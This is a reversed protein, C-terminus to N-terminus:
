IPCDPVTTFVFVFHCKLTRKMKIANRSEKTRRQQLFLPLSISENSNSLSVSIRWIKTTPKTREYYNWLVKQQFSFSDFNTKPKSLTKGTWLKMTKEKWLDKMMKPLMISRWSIRFSADFLKEFLQTQKMDTTMWYGLLKQWKFEKYRCAISCLDM